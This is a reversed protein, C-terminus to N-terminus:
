SVASRGSAPTPTICRAKVWEQIESALYLRRRMVQHSPLGLRMWAYLTPKTIGLMQCVQATTLFSEPPAAFEMTTVIGM